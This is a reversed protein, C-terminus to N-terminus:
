IVFYLPRTLSNELLTKVQNYRNFMDIILSNKQKKFQEGILKKV